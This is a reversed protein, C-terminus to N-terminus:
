VSLIAMTNMDELKRRKAAPEDDDVVNIDMDADDVIIIPSQADADQTDGMGNGTGSMPLMASKIGAIGGDQTSAARTSSDQAKAKPPGGSGPAGNRVKKPRGRAKSNKGKKMEKIYGKIYGGLIELTKRTGLAQLESLQATTLHSFIAPNLILTNDVLVIPPTTLFAALPDSPPITALPHSAPVPGVILPLCVDPPLNPIASNSQGSTSTAPPSTVPPASSTNLTIAQQQMPTSTPQPTPPAITSINPAASSASQQPPHASCPQPPPSTPSAQPVAAPQPSPVLMPQGPQPLHMSRAHAMHIAYSPHHPHWPPIMPQGYQPPYAQMPIHELKVSIPQANQPPPRSAPNTTNFTPPAASAPAPKTVLPTSAFPPPLPGSKLDRASRKLPPELASAGGKDKKKSGKDKGETSAALRAKAEQEEFVQEFTEDVGWFFGKGREGGCREM